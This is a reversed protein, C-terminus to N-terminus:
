YNSARSKTSTATPGPSALRRRYTSPSMGTTGRFVKDLRALDTYGVAHAIETISCGRDALLEKVRDIRLRQVYQRFSTKMIATFAHSLTFRGLGVEAAVRALPVPEPLHARIYAAARRVKAETSGPWEALIRDSAEGDDPDAGAALVRRVCAVLSTRDPPKPFYDTIGRRFAEACLSESGFRTLMLVPVSPRLARVESLLHLGSADPLRAELIVLGLAGLRPILRLAERATKAARVECLDGLWGALPRHTGAEGDVLLAQRMPHM